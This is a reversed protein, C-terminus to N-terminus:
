PISPESREIAELTRDKEAHKEGSVGRAFAAACLSLVVVFGLAIRLSLADASLGSVPPVFLFCLYVCTAVAAIATGSAQKSARGAASLTLPFVVSFGAGVLGFGLIAIPVWSFVLAITLGAAAVLGGLRVM